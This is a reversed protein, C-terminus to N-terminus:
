LFELYDKMTEKTTRQLLRLLKAMTERFLEIKM